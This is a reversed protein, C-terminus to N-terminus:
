GRMGTYATRGNTHGGTTTAPETVRSVATEILKPVQEQVSAKLQATGRTLAEQAIKKVEQGAMEFLEGLWSPRTPAPAAPQYGTAPTYAASSMASAMSSERRFVLMGTVFGLAAAGGVCAWPNERVHRRVDLADRLGDTLSSVSDKVTGTVSQVTDEVASKVSQVTDQVATTSTQLTGVVQQELLSVKETLSERTTQMEKEIVEPSERDM